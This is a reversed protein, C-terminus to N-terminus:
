GVTASLEPSSCRKLTPHLCPSFKASRRESPLKIDKQEMETNSTLSARSTLAPQFNELPVSKQQFISIKCFQFMECSCTSEMSLKLLFCAPQGPLRCDQNRALRPEGPEGRGLCSSRWSGSVGVLVRSHSLQPSPFM